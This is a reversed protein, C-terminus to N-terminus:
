LLRQPQADLVHLKAVMTDHHAVGPAVAMRRVSTVYPFISTLMIM